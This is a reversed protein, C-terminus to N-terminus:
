HNSQCISRGYKPRAVPPANEIPIMLSEIETAERCGGVAINLRERPVREIDYAYKEVARKVSGVKKRDDKGSYIFLFGRVHSNKKLTIFFGGLKSVDLEPNNTVEYTEYPTYVESALDYVPFGECRLNADKRNPGYRVSTITKQPQIAVVYQIGRLRDTYYENTHEVTRIFRDSPFDRVDFKMASKPIREYSVATNPGVKWGHWECEASAYRVKVFDKDTSYTTIASDNKIVTAKQDIESKITRLPIIWKVPGNNKQQGHVLAASTVLCFLLCNWM